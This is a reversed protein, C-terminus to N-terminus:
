TTPLQLSGPRITSATRSPARAPQAIQNASNIAFYGASRINTRAPIGAMALHKQWHRADTVKKYLKERLVRNEAQLYEIVDQEQHNIWGALILFLLQWPHLVSKMHSRIVTHNYFFLLM